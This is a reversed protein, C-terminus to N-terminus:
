SLKELPGIAVTAFESLPFRKLVRAMDALQVNRYSDVAERITRYQRRQIWSHGVSFMRSTPREAQLVIHACIKNKAQNLEEETVNDKEATAFIERLLNLNGAAEGPESAMNTMFVGSGQFEQLSLSAYEALGTDVLEWFMRSGSDDGLITSLVRAAYRDEDNAAPGLAGMVVYEQAAQPKAIVKMEHAAKAPPTERPAEFAPWKGCISEVQQILKPFDVAGGAALV